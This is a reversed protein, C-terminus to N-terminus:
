RLLVLALVAVIIGAIASRLTWKVAVGEREITWNNLMSLLFILALVPFVIAGAIIFVYSGINAPDPLNTTLGFIELASFALFILFAAIQARRRRKTKSPAAENSPVSEM